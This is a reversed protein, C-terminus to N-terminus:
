LARGIVEKMIESTGGYIRQVRADRWLRAIMYENMYGAGGHLQLAADVIKWQTESHWLKAAAAEDPTLEGALHRAIAWDLHAWGVQLQSKMEALVFRTNQFDLVTKGFAKRERVFALAEDYARQAGAQSAAAISLREQPLQGVLMSLGAGEQGLMNAVPVRVEDFFLESTDASSQGIKDLNRGRRFGERTTEVLVLSLREPMAETKLAVIVFDCNQGNSIYTKSGSIVFEDGDQRARTRIGRLDSGAGPETMAIAAIASGDVTGPLWRAKLEESGYHLLYDVCVDSHTQPGNPAAAYAIEESILLNFSMDLGPGGWQEPVQPSLLGQEGCRLWYARETIGEEEWRNGNAEMERTLFRRVQQRLAVHEPGYSGREGDWTSTAYSM